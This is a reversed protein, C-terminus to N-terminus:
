YIIPLTEFSIISTGKKRLSVTGVWFPVDTAAESGDAADYFSINVLTSNVIDSDQPLSFVYMNLNTNWILRIESTTGSSYIASSSWDGATADWHQGGTRIIAYPDSLTWSSSYKPTHLWGTRVELYASASMLFPLCVLMLIVSCVLKKM